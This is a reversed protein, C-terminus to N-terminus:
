HNQYRIFLLGKNFTFNRILKQIFVGIRAQRSYACQEDSQLKGSQFSQLHHRNNRLIWNGVTYSEGVVYWVLRVDTKIELDHKM